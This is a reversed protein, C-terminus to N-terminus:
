IQKRIYWFIHNSVLTGDVGRTTIGLTGAGGSGATISTYYMIENGVKVYGRSTTIGEFQAFANTNAISVTTDNIGLNATLQVPVTDPDINKIQVINTDAHM